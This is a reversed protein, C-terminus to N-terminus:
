PLIDNRGEKEIRHDLETKVEVMNNNDGIDLLPFYLM